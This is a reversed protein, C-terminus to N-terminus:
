PTYALLKFIGNHKDTFLERDISFSYHSTYYICLSPAPFVPQIVNPPFKVTLQCHFVSDLFLIMPSIVNERLKSTQLLSESAFHWVIESVFIQCSLPQHNWRWFNDNLLYTPSIGPSWPFTLWSLRSLCAEKIKCFSFFSHLSTNTDSHVPKVLMFPSSPLFNMQQCYSPLRVVCTSDDLPPTM